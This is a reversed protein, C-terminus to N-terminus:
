QNNQFVFNMEAEEFAPLVKDKSSVVADKVDMQWDIQLKKDMYYIGRESNANYYNDCKYTLIATDSIVAFGHAFGRPVFMQLKNEASIETGYWQGFTPSGKRIDVAVDYVAGAIVRILKAQGYPALQYHLGRLVGRKSKSENDQVFTAKIGKKLLKNQHYSEFFYGREDKFVRPKVIVLGPIGTKIIDM